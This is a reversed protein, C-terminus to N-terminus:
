IPDEVLQLNFNYLLPPQIPTEAIDQAAAVTMTVNEFVVAESDAPSQQLPPFIELTGEGSSDSSFDEVVMYVKAHNTFQAYDGKRLLNTESVRFGGLDVSTGVQAAGMVIPTDSGSDFSGRPTEHGPIIVQFNEYQGSQSIVFAYIEAMQDRELMAWGLDMTWRHHGLTRAIRRLNHAISVLTPSFQRIVVSAPIPIAPLTGAM